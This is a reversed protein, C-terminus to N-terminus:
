SNFYSRGHSEYYFECRNQKTPEKQGAEKDSTRRETKKWRCKLSNHDGSNGIWCSDRNVVYARELEVTVVM